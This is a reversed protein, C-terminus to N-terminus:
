FFCKSHNHYLGSSKLESTLHESLLKVGQHGDAMRDPQWGRLHGRHVLTQVAASVLDEV